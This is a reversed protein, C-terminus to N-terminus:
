RVGFKVEVGLVYLVKELFRQLGSCPMTEVEGGRADLNTHKTSNLDAMYQLGLSRLFGLSNHSNSLANVTTSSIDFWVDRDFDSTRKEYVKVLTSNPTNLRAVIANVLGAPGAGIVSIEEYRASAGEAAASTKDVLANAFGTVRMLLDDDDNCREGAGFEKFVDEPALAQGGSEAVLRRLKALGVSGLIERQPESVSLIKRLAGLSGGGPFKCTGEHYENQVGEGGLHTDGLAPLLTTACVFFLISLNIFVLAIM